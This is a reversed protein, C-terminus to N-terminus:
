RCETTFQRQRKTRSRRSCTFTFLAGTERAHWVNWMGRTTLDLTIAAATMDCQLLVQVSRGEQFPYGHVDYM